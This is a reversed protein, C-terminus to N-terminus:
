IVNVDGDPVLSCEGGNFSITLQNTLVMGGIIQAQEEPTKNSQANNIDQAVVCFMWLGKERSNFYRGGTYVGDSPKEDPYIGDDQMVLSRFEGNPGFLFCQVFLQDGKMKNGDQDYFEGKVTWFEKKYTHVVNPATIVYKSLVHLNNNKEDVAYTYTKGTTIRTYEWKAGVLFPKGPAVPEPYSIVLHLKEGTTLEGAAPVTNDEGRRFPDRVDTCAAITAVAAAAAVLGAAVYSTGGGTAAIGCCDSSSSTDGTTTTVGVDGSGGEAEAIAAGILLLLVIICLIIKWWPDQFPLDGYQGSFPPTYTVGGELEHPLYGRICFQFEPDHGNFFKGIDNFINGDNKSDSQRKRCCPNKKTGVLDKFRVQFIGEPTTATFTRTGPDFQVRTVFIKEIIRHHGTSDEVIFSVYHKGPPAATFDADWSLVRTAQGALSGINYTFPTIVIGPNSVSEIYMKSNTATSAGMNKFQANIRQKGLSAEFIGDPLMLGTIIETAFPRNLIDITSM